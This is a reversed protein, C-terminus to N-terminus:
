DLTKYMPWDITDGLRLDGFPKDRSVLQVSYDLIEEVVIKYCGPYELSSGIVTGYAVCVDKHVLHMLRRMTKGTQESARRTEQPPSDNRAQSYSGHHTSSRMLTEGQSLSQKLEDMEKWLGGTEDMLQVIKNEIKEHSLKEDALAKMYPAGYRISTKSVGM